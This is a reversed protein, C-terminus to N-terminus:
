PFRDVELPKAATDHVTAPRLRTTMTLGPRSQYRLAKALMMLIIGAM